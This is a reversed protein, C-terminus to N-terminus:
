PVRTLAHSTLVLDMGYCSGATKFFSLADGSLRWNYRGISEQCGCDECSDKIYVEIQDGTVTYIGGVMFEGGMEATFKGDSTLIFQWDGQNSALAPDKSISFKSVDDSSITTTYTGALMQAGQTPDIKPQEPGSSCAALIFVWFGILFIYPLPKSKM